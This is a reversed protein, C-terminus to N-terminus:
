DSELYHITRDFELLKRMIPRDLSSENIIMACLAEWQELLTADNAPQEKVEQTAPEEVERWNVYSCPSDFGMSTYKTVLDSSRTFEACLGNDDHICGVCGEAEFSIYNKGEFRVVIDKIM